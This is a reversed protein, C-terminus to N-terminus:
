GVLAALAASLRARVRGDPDDRVAPHNLGQILVVAATATAAVDPVAALGARDLRQLFVSLVAVSREHRARYVRRIEASGGIRALAAAITPAAAVYGGAVDGIVRSLVGDVGHDLVEAPDLAHEVADIIGDLARAFAAALLADKDGFYRYFTGTSVGARVAVAGSVVDAGEALAEEAADLLADRTRVAKPSLDKLEM